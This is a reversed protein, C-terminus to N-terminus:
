VYSSTFQGPGRLLLMRILSITLQIDNANLDQMQINAVRGPNPNSPQLSEKGRRIQTLATLPSRESLIFSCLYFQSWCHQFRSALNQIYSRDSHASARDLSAASPKRTRARGLIVVNSGLVFAWISTAESQSHDDKALPQFLFSPMRIHGIM